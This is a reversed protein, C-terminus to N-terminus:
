KLDSGYLLIHNETVRQYFADDKKVLEHWQSLKFVSINVEKGLM